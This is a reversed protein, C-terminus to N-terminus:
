VTSVGESNASSWRTVAWTRTKSATTGRARRAASLGARDYLGGMGSWATGSRPPNPERGVAIPGHVDTRGIITVRGETEVVWRGASTM